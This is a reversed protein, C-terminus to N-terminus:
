RELATPGRGGPGHTLHQSRVENIEKTEMQESERVFREIAKQCLDAEEGDLGVDVIGLFYSKGDLEKQKARRVIEWLIPKFKQYLSNTLEIPNDSAPSDTSNSKITPLQDVKASAFIEEWDNLLEQISKKNLARMERLRAVFKEKLRKKLFERQKKKSAQSDEISEVLIKEIIPKCGQIKKDIKQETEIDPPPGIPTFILLKGDSDRVGMVGQAVMDLFGMVYDFIDNDSEWEKSFLKKNFDEERDRLFCFILYEMGSNTIELFWSYYEPGVEITVDINRKKCIEHMRGLFEQNYKRM